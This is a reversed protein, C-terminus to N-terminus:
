EESQEASTSTLEAIEARAKRLQEDIKAKRLKAARLEARKTLLANARNNGGKIYQKHANSM